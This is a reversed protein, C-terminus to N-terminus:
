FLPSNGGTPTKPVGFGPQGMPEPVFNDDDDEEQVAADLDIMPEGSEVREIEEDIADSSVDVYKNQGIDEFVQSAGNFLLYASGNSPGNNNLGCYIEAYTAMSGPVKAMMGQWPGSRFRENTPDVHYPRHIIFVQTADAQAGNGGFVHSVHPRKDKSKVSENTIQSGLIIKIGPMENALTRLQATVKRRDAFENRSTAVEQFLGIRDFIFHRVGHKHYYLHVVRRVFPVSLPKFEVFVKKGAAMKKFAMYAARVAKQDFIHKTGVIRSSLGAQAAALREYTKRADMEASAFYMPRNERLAQRLINNFLSSKGVKPGAAIVILEGTGPDAGRVEDLSPLGFLDDPGGAGDPLNKVYAEHIDALAAVSADDGSLGELLKDVKSKFDSVAKDADGTDNLEAFGETFATRVSRLFWAETVKKAHAELNGPEGGSVDVENLVQRFEDRDEEDIFDIFSVLAERNPKVGDDKLREYSLLTERLFDSEVKAPEVGLAYVREIMEPNDLMIKVISFEHQM